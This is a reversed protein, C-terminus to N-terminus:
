LIADNEIKTLVWVSALVCDASEGHAQQRADCWSEVDSRLVAALVLRRAIACHWHLTRRGPCATWVEEATERVTFVRAFAVPHTM